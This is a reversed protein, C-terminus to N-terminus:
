KDHWFLYTQSVKLSTKHIIKAQMEKGRRQLGAKADDYLQEQRRRSLYVSNRCIRWTCPRERLEHPFWDFHLM